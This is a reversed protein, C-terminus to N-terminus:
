RLDERQLQRHRRADRSGYSPLWSVQYRHGMAINALAYGMSLVGQGGFGAIKIEDTIKKIEPLKVGKIEDMMSKIDLLDHYEKLHPEPHLTM